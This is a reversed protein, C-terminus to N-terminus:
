EPALAGKSAGARPGVGILIAGATMPAGECSRRVTSAVLTACARTAAAAGCADVADAEVAAGEAGTRGCTARVAGTRAPDAPPGGCGGWEEVTAVLLSVRCPTRIRSRLTPESEPEDENESRQSALPFRRLSYLCLRLPPRVTRSRRWPLCLLDSPPGELHSINQSGPSPPDPKERRLSEFAADSSIYPSRMKCAVRKPSKQAIAQDRFLM